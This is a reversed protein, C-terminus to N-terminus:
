KLIDRAKNAEKAQPKFECIRFNPNTFCFGMKAMEILDMKAKGGRIRM